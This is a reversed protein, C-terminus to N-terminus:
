FRPQRVFLGAQASTDMSDGKCESSSGKHNTEKARMMHEYHQNENSFCRCYEEMLDPFTLSRSVAGLEAAISEYFTSKPVAHSETSVGAGAFVAVNGAFLEGALEESLSFEHSNGCFICDCTAGDQAM